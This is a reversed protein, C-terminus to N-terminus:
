NFQFTGNDNATMLDILLELDPSLVNQEERKNGYDLAEFLAWGLGAVLQVHCVFYLIVNFYPSVVHTVKHTDRARRCCVVLSPFYFQTTGM